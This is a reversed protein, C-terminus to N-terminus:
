KEIKDNFKSQDSKLFAANALCGMGLIAFAKKKFIVGSLLFCAGLVGNTRAISNRTEQNPRPLKVTVGLHEGFEEFFDVTKNLM